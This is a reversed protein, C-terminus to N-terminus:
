DKVPTCWRMVIMVIMVTLLVSARRAAMVTVSTVEELVL